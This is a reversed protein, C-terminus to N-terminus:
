KDKEMEIMTKIMARLNPDTLEAIEYVDMGRDLLMEVMLPRSLPLDREIARRHLVRFEVMEKESLEDPTKGEYRALLTAYRQDRTIQFTRM